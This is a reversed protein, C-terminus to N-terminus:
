DVRTVPFFGPDCDDCSVPNLLEIEFRGLVLLEFAVNIERFYGADFWRQLCSKDIITAITVSKESKRFNMGIIVLYWFFIAFAKQGLFGFGSCFFSRQAFLFFFLAFFWRIDHLTRFLAFVFNGVEYFDIAVVTDIRDVHTFAFLRIQTTRAFLRALFVTAVVIVTAIVATATTASAAITALTACRFGAVLDAGLAHVQTTTVLYLIDDVTTLNQQYLDDLFFAAVLASRQCSIQAESTTIADQHRISRMTASNAPFDMAGGIALAQLRDYRIQCQWRRHSADDAGGTKRAGLRFDLAVEVIQSPKPVFDTFAGQTTSRRHQDVSIAVKDFPSDSVDVVLIDLFDKDLPGFSVLGGLIKHLQQHGAVGLTHLM